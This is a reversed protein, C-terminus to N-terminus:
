ENLIYIVKLNENLESQAVYGIAQENKVIFAILDKENRKFIAARKRGTFRLRSWYANVSALPMGVLQKYFDIKIDEDGELEVPIAKSDDPFAVYKGMFLDILESRSLSNIPNNKNVVIAIPEQAVVASASISSAILITFIIAQNLTSM